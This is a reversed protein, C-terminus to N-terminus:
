FQISPKIALPFIKQFSDVRQTSQLFPPLLKLQKSCIKGPSIVSANRPVPLSFLSPCAQVTGPLTQLSLHFTFVTVEVSDELEVDM